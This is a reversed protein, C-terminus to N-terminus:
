NYFGTRPDLRYIDCILERVKDLLIAIHERTYPDKVMDQQLDILKDIVIEVKKIARDKKM